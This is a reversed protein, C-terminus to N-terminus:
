LAASKLDYKVVKCMMKTRMKCFTIIICSANWTWNRLPFDLRTKTDSDCKLRKANENCKENKKSAAIFKTQICHSVEFQPRLYRLNKFAWRTLGEVSAIHNKKQKIFFIWFNFLGRYTFRFILVQFSNFNSFLNFLLWFTETEFFKWCQFDKFLKYSKDDM